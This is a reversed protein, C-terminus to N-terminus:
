AEKILQWTDPQAATKALWSIAGEPRPLWHAPEGKKIRILTAKEGTNPNLYKAKGTEFYPEERNYQYEFGQKHLEESLDAFGGTKGIGQAQYTARDEISQKQM